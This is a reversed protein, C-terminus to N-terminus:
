SRNKKEKKKGVKILKTIKVGDLCSVNASQESVKNQM